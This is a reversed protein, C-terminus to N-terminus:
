FEFVKFVVFFGLMTFFLPYISTIGAVGASYTPTTITAVQTNVSPLLSVAFVIILLAM